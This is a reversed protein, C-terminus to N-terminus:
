EREGPHSTKDPLQAYKAPKLPKEFTAKQLSESLKNMVNKYNSSGPARMGSKIKIKTGCDANYSAL